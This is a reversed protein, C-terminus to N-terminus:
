FYKQLLQQKLAKLKTIEKRRESLLKVFPSYKKDFEGIEQASLQPVMMKMFTENNIGAMTTGVSHLDRQVDFDKSIVFASLLSLPLEKTALLGQFGTSLIYHNTLDSDDDTIILKKCSGKMKAFWVSNKVPQMNARSPRKSITIEEGASINNVGEVSSTDLYEKSNSFSDIGSKILRPKYVSIEVKNLYQLLSKDLLECIKDIEQQYNEMLDDISGITNVIHQKLPENPVDFLMTRLQELSVYPQASGAMSSRLNYRGIESQLYYFLYRADLESKCRFVGVNKIAYKPQEEILGVIGANIGIMSILIDFQKVASRKNVLDYDEKSILSAESTDIKSNIICKSTVLPFGTSQYKPSDHTGDFISLCYDSSKVKKYFEKM